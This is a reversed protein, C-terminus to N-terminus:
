RYIICNYLKIIFIRPEMTTSIFQNLVGNVSTNIFINRYTNDDVGVGLERFGYFFIFVSM